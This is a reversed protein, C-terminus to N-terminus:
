NEQVGVRRKEEVVRPSRSKEQVVVRLWCSEFIRCKEVVRLLGWYVEVDTCM